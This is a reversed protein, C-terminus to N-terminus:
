GAGLNPLTGHVLEYLRRRARALRSMVTGVPVDLSAAAEQYSLGDVCIMVLVLRQDEPLRAIARNVVELTHQSEATHAGNQGPVKDAEEPDVTEGRVKQARLQDIRLTQMIRFMWSDLRTDTQWQHLRSLAKECAAQVLDDADDPSGTLAYAFRRLRPLLAIMQQRIDSEM